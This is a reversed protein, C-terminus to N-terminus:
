PVKGGEDDQWQGGHERAYKQQRRASDAYLPYMDEATRATTRTVMRTRFRVMVVFSCVGAVLLMPVIIDELWWM